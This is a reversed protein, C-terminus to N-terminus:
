LTEVPTDPQSAWEVWSGDYLAADRIGVRYLALNLVCASVGSGCSTVIPKGVDVGAREFVDRIVHPPALTHDERILWKYFVNLSGPIHGGRLGPRPEPESGSFRGPSRADM